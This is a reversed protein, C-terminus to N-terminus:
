VSESVRKELRALREELSAIREEKSSLILELRSIDSGDPLPRLLMHGRKIVPSCLFAKTGIRYIPTYLGDKLCSLDMTIGGGKVEGRKDAIILEGTPLDSLTFSVEEAGIGSISKLIIAGEEDPSCNYSRKYIIKTM